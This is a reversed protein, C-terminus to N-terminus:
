ISAMNLFPQTKKEGRKFNEVYEAKKVVQDSKIPKTIYRTVREAM